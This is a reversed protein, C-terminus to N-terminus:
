DGGKFLSFQDQLLVGIRLPEIFLLRPFDRTRTSKSLSLMHIIFTLLVMDLHHIILRIMRKDKIM